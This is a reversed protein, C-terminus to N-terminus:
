PTNSLETAPAGEDSKVVLVKVDGPAVSAPVTTLLWDANNAIDVTATFLVTKSGAATLRLQYSGGNLEISDSGSGPQAQKFGVASFTPSAAALDANPATIYVDLSTANFSANFMRVRAKDSTLGKNYPDGILVVETLSGADPVAVLTYKTGRRADFTVSGVTAAPSTATRVDWRATDTSDDFYKSAGKYPMNTVDSAQAVDNRFLSINPALPVAHVLRVKPDALDARDDFSDDGSGGCAALLLAPAFALLMKTSTKM